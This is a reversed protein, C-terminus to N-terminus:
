TTSIRACRRTTGSLTRQDIYPYRLNMWIKFDAVRSRQGVHVMDLFVAIHAMIWLFYSHFIQMMLPLRMVRQAEPTDCGVPHLLELVSEPQTHFFATRTELSYGTLADFIRANVCTMPWSVAYHMAAIMQEILSTLILVQLRELKRQEKHYIFRAENAAFYKLNSSQRQLAFIIGNYVDHEGSDILESSDDGQAQHYMKAFVDQSMEVWLVGSESNAAGDLARRIFHTADSAFLFTCVTLRSVDFLM